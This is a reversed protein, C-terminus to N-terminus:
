RPAHRRVRPPVDNGMVFRWPKTAYSGAYAVGIRPTQQIQSSKIIVGRDEVWLGSKKTLPKGNLKKDIRLFKTLKAPGDVKRVALNRVTVSHPIQLGRILVAAPYGAPGTVANLMWHIGYTFYVYARGAPGWMPSNRATHGNRAHCALDKPGDYAETEVIVLAIKKGGIKRVLHKGLLERAVTLTPREFFEPGLVKRM